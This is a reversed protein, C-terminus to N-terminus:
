QGLPVPALEWLGQSVVLEPWFRRYDPVISPGLDQLVDWPRRLSSQDQWTGQGEAQGAHGASPPAWRAVGEEWSSAGPTGAVGKRHGGRRKGTGVRRALSSWKRDAVM